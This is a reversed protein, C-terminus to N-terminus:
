DGVGIPWPIRWIGWKYGRNSVFYIWHGQPDAIPMTDESGNTTLQRRETGNARMIWIDNNPTGTSDKGENSVYLIYEGDPSWEPWHEQTDPNTTLQVPTQANVPIVWLKNDPGIFAIGGGDPSVRPTTGERIQTPYQNRGGLTWVQPVGTRTRYDPQYSFSVLGSGSPVPFRSWGETQRHISAIGGGRSESSIRFLDLGGNRLRDSAFYLHKGDPDFCPDLDMWRGTTIQTIGGGHTSVARLNSYELINDKEDTGREVVAFALREGDPSVSLGSFWMDRGLSAITSAPTGDREIDEEFARVLRMRIVLGKLPDIEVEAKEVEEYPARELNLQLVRAGGETPLNDVFDCNLEETRELYREKSVKVKFRINTRSGFDFTHGVPTDSTLLFPSGEAAGITRTVEVQAGPPESRIEIQRRKPCGVIGLALVVLMLAYWPRLKM